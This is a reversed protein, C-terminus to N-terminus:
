VEFAISPYGVTYPGKHRPRIVSSHAYKLIKNKPNGFKRTLDALTFVPGYGCMTMGVLERFEIADELKDQELLELMKQDNTELLKIDPDHSLDSSAIVAIKREDFNSILDFLFQSIIKGTQHFDQNGYCIPLIRFKPGYLYQLFPVQIEISHEYKQSEGEFQTVQHFSTNEYREAFEVFETDIEVNGFPLEWSGEPFISIPPYGFQHNPGLIIATDIEKMHSYLHAYSHAAIPGSFFYGAHPVAIGVLQKKCKEIQDKPDFGPGFTEDLFLDRITEKLDEPDAPYWSGAIPSSRIM